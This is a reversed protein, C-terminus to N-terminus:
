IVKPSWEPQKGSFDRQMMDGTYVSQEGEVGGQQKLVRVQVNKNNMQMQKPSKRVKMPQGTRKNTVYMYEKKAGATQGTTPANAVYASNAMGNVTTPNSLDKLYLPEPYKNFTSAEPALPQDVRTVEALGGIKQADVNLYYNGGRQKQQSQKPSKGGKQQQSQKPSKTNKKPSNRQQKPSQRNNKSPSKRRGGTAVTTTATTYINNLEQLIPQNANTIKHELATKIADYDANDPNAIQADIGGDADTKNLRKAINARTLSPLLPLKAKIYALKFSDRNKILDWNIDSVPRPVAANYDTENDRSYIVNNNVVNDPVIAPIPAPFPEAGDTTGNRIMELSKLIETYQPITIPNSIGGVILNNFDSIWADITQENSLTRGDNNFLRQITIVDIAAGGRQRNNYNKRAGGTLALKGVDYRSGFSNESQSPQPVALKYEGLIEKMHNDIGTASNGGKMNGRQQQRKKSDRRKDKSNRRQM